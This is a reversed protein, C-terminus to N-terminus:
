DRVERARKPVQAKPDTGGPSRDLFALANFFVIGFKM